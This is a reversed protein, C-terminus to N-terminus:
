SKAVWVSQGNLIRALQAPFQDADLPKGLFGDFGHQRVINIESVHVTYAVIPVGQFHPDAKLAEFVQFGDRGPMELDLFVVDVHGVNGLASDLRNPNAVEISSVGEMELMQALVQLNQANDDIILAQTM